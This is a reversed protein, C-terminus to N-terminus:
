VVHFSEKETEYETELCNNYWVKTLEENSYHLLHEIHANISDGADTPSNNTADLPSGGDITPSEAGPFPFEPLFPAFHSLADGNATKSATATDNSGGHQTSPPGAVQKGHRRKLKPLNPNGDPADDDDDNGDDIDDIVEASNGNDADENDDDDDDSYGYVKPDRCFAGAAGLAMISFHSIKIRASERHGIPSPPNQSDFSLICFLSSLHRM